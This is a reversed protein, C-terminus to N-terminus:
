SFKTNLWDGAGSEKGFSYASMGTQAGSIAAGAYDPQAIPKNISLLNMRSRNAADEFGLTRNVDGLRLQQQISSTFEGEKRTLDNILADVSIGAVGAEGASVRATARAEQAKKTAQQIRQAAAVKEQRERLRVASMETLYRQQEAITANQQAKAQAKAQQKQGSVSMSMQAAGLALSAIALPECM